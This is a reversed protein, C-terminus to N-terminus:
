NGPPAEISRLRAFGGEPNNLIDPVDPYIRPAAWGGAVIVPVPLPSKDEPGLAASLDLARRLLDVTGSLAITMGSADLTTNELTAIGDALTASASLATFATGGPAASWGDVIRSRLMAALGGLDLGTIQGQPLGLSATGKLTAALEEQTTGSASLEAALNGTGGLGANGALAGLLAAMEANEAKLTLSVAPPLVVSDVRTTFGLTGGNALGLGGSAELRGDTLTATLRSPGATLGLYAASPALLSVEADFSRLLAFPLAARGWEGAEAGSAPLLADLWVTEAQLDAQLKPREGRLDAVLDGAGRFGGHAIAANRIAYARGASDLAGELAFPGPLMTSEALPLGAWRLAAAPNASTISLPGALSLVKATALRGSFTVATDGTGIALELPSGDENVRPLSKLELGIRAVRSRIVASGEFSVGGDAAINMVGNTNSLSLGHGSRADFYRFSADELTLRMPGVPGAEPFDWSAKGREDILLAIDAGALTLRSLSTRRTLLGGLSLPMVLSRATLLSDATESIGALAANEFRISLPSFDLHVAQATFARGIQQQAMREMQRLAWGPSLVAWALITLIVLAAGVAAAVYQARM